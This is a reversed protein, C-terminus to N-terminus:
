TRSVTSGPWAVCRWGRSDLEVLFPVAHPLPTGWVQSGLGCLWSLALTLSAVHGVLAVTQGRHTDAIHRFATTMRDLVQHGTEGDAVQQGLDNEVVWAHLVEATRRHVAPATMGEYEGVGVEVLEPLVVVDVRATAALPEATQVARAATSAYVRTIPEGALESAAAVAQQHGRETLPAASVAGALGATVNESEAHRLCWVRTHVTV